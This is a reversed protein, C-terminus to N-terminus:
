LEVTISLARPYLSGEEILAAEFLEYGKDNGNYVNKELGKPSGVGELM